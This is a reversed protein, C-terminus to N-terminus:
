DDADIGDEISRKGKDDCDFECQTLIIDGSDSTTVKVNHMHM